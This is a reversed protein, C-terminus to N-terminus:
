FQPKWLYSIGLILYMCGSIYLMFHWHWYKSCLREILYLDPNQNKKIYKNAVTKSKEKHKPNSEKQM